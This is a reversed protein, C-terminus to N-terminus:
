HKRLALHGPLDIIELKVGLHDKLLLTRMICFDTGGKYHEGGGQARSERLIVTSKCM